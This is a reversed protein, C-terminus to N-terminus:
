YQLVTKFQKTEAHKHAVVKEVNFTGFKAAEFFGQMAAEALWGSELWDFLWEGAHSVKEQSIGAGIAKLWRKNYKEQSGLPESMIIPLGLASYFSLESPKTWLVDTTRLAKNFKKFYDEKTNSYLVHISKKLQPGLGIEKLTDVFYNNVDNHIGAVLTLRVEGKKLKESLSNAIKIGVDRQAGAGGVAFMITLPHHRKTPVRDKGLHQTLVRKYKPIYKRAPDLNYLRKGLDAKLTNLTDGGVNERPLPFGTLFINDEPVGYLKLREYVRKTPVMYHIRTKAPNLPAWARAIDADAVVMYIEGEYGHEEAMYAPVFFSTILPIKKKNLRDILHKGWKKRRILSYTSRLQLSSKSLDRKPYFSKIEQFYDFVSFALDGVVPTGKFRSIFNYFERQKQWIEKDAKAIGKYSDAHVVKGGEALHTLPYAARQHGYGMDMAVVWAKKTSPTMYVTYLLDLKDNRAFRLLRM